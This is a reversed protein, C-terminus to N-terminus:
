RHWTIVDFTVWVDDHWALTTMLSTLSWGGWILNLLKVVAWYSRSCGISIVPCTHITSQTQVQTVKVKSRPLLTWPRHEGRVSWKVILETLLLTILESSVSACMFCDIYCHHLIRVFTVVVRSHPMNMCESADTQSGYKHELKQFGQGLFKIKPMYTPVEESHKRGIRIRLDDPWPWATLPLLWFRWIFM